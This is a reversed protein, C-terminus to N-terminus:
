NGKAILYKYIIEDLSRKRYTEAAFVRVKQFGVLGIMFTFPIMFLICSIKNLLLLRRLKQDKINDVYKMCRIFKLCHFWNILYIVLILGLGTSMALLFFTDGQKIGVKIALLNGGIVTIVVTIAFIIPLMISFRYAKKTSEKLIDWADTENIM